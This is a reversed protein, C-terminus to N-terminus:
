LSERCVESKFTGGERLGLSRWGDCKVRNVSRTLWLGNREWSHFGGVRFYSTGRTLSCPPHKQGPLKSSCSINPGHTAPPHRWPPEPLCSPMTLRLHLLINGYVPRVHPSRGVQESRETYFTVESSVPTQLYTYVFGIITFQNTNDQLILNNLFLFLTRLVVTLLLLIKFVIIVFSSKSFYFFIWSHRLIFFPVILEIFIRCYKKNKLKTKKIFKFRKM